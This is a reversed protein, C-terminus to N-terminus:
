VDPIQWDVPSRGWAELQANVKSFSQTGWWSKASLPSPHSCEIIKHKKKDVLKKKKRAFGGWLVFVVPKERASVASIVADTFDEWGKKAHSAPEKQRVTLVANLMLIGQNAWPMLYGNNPITCGVDTGLEKFINRLSPPTTVGPLVSFCLGHAQGPGHYPDQGLIFVNVDEYPTAELAAFIHEKVPYVTKSAYEADLFDGLEKIYPKELEGALPTQWSEPVMEKLDM